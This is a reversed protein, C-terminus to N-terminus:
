PEDDLRKEEAAIDKPPEPFSAWPLPKKLTLSWRSLWEDGNPGAYTDPTKYAPDRMARDLTAPKLGNRKLIEALADISDANLRTAHLLFVLAPRRGFLELAAQRYWPIVQETYALYAQRISAQGAEDRKAVAEDYPLAFMLDSNELTVPAIRYGRAALWAEFTQRVEPTLGTELYPHRFWRPRRGRAAMLARITTEGKEVDAIYAEVPTKNLSVHSYTHNGLDEGADLWLALLAVRGPNDPGELKGANVFGIAPLRHRRLGALLRETTLRVYPLSPDLTLAPLDDFTLAVPEAAAPTAAAALSLVAACLFGKVPADERRREKASCLTL